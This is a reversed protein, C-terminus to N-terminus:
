ECMAKIARKQYYRDTIEDKVSCDSIDTRTKRRQMLLELDNITHFAYLQREPYGLGDIMQITYGNTYYIVPRVGYEAELCDAYLEAQHKGTHADVSTRKAEIVALPKGDKGFLVYDAFGIGSGSPMGHVEIEICARAPAKDGETDLVEWGAERLMLDIFRRRTEAESIGDWSIAPKVKPAAAITEPSAIEELFSDSHYSDYSDYGNDSKPLLTKNFPALSNIARLKLLVGGVLNYLNLVTFFSDSRTIQGNHAALNGVKRIWHVAKMLKPDNIFDVFVDATTLEILRAQEGIPANKMKYIAKVLWELAKRANIASTDPEAYQRTETLDCLRYLESLATLGKHM